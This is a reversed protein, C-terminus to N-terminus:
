NSNWLTMWTSAPNTQSLWDTLIWMIKINIGNIEILVVTAQCKLLWWTDYTLCMATLSHKQCLWNHLDISAPKCNYHWRIPKQQSFSFCGPSQCSFALLKLSYCTLDLDNNYSISTSNNTTSASDLCIWPFSLAAPQNRNKASVRHWHRAMRLKWCLRVFARGQKPVQMWECSATFPSNWKVCYWLAQHSDIRMKEALTLCDPETEFVQVTLYIKSQRKPNLFWDLLVIRYHWVCTLPSTACSYHVFCEGRTFM